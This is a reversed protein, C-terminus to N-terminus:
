GAAPQQSPTSYVQAYDIAFTLASNNWAESTLRVTHAGSGLNEAQFLMTQPQYFQKSTTYNTTAGNDLRVSYPAGQPSVPGFIAVAASVKFSYEVFAGATSTVHGSGGNFMGINPPSTTWASAPTYKFSSDSDQITYSLLSESDEGIPTQWTIFDLDLKTTGLNVMTVKHLGNQLAATQFLQTQFVEETGNVKGNAPSYTHSDITVQYSGHDARQAGYLQVGTGYFTFSVSANAVQTVTFSSDSYKDISSDNSTGSTWDNGGTGSYSIVPSFDEITTILTPM